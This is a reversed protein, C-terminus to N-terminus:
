LVDLILMQAPRHCTHCYGFIGGKDNEFGSHHSYVSDRQLLLQVRELANLPLPENIFKFHRALLKRFHPQRVSLRAPAAESPSCVGLRGGPPWGELGM